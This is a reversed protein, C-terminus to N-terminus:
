KQYVLCHLHGLSLSFSFSEDGRLIWLTDVWQSVFHDM